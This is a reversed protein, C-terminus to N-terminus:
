DQCKGALCYALVAFVLVGAGIGIARFTKTFALDKVAGKLSPTPTVKEVQAYTVTTAVNSKEDTVAFHDEGIESVYGALKTKDRLKVEVKAKTGTGIDAIEKKVRASRKAEKDQQGSALASAGCAFNLVLVALAMPLLKKLM